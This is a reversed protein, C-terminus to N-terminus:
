APPANTLGAAKLEKRNCQRKNAVRWTSQGEDVLTMRAEEEPPRQSRKYPEIEAVYWIGSLKVYHRNGNILIRWDSQRKQNARETEHREKWVPKADSWCLLGTRPHVYLGYVPEPERYSRLHYIRGDKGIFCHQKVEREVHEFVHRGTTKRTDLHESLESYVKDWPRGVNRRLFRFLPGLLDSFYKTQNPRIHKNRTGSIRKPLDDYDAAPDFNRVRLATREGRLYHGHRPREVVVKSM